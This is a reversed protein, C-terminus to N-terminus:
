YRPRYDYRPSVDYNVVICPMGNEALCSSYSVEILDDVTWGLEDGVRIPSLELESYLDNLSIYMESILRHNLLSVVKDIKERSSRFYRGSCSDYCLLDTTSGSIDQTLKEANEHMLEEETHAEVMEAKKPGLEKLVQKKYEKFKANTLSYAMSTAALRRAHENYSALFCTFSTTCLVATPIYVPVVEKVFRKAKEKSDSEENSIDRVCDTAVVTARSAEFIALGGFLLGGGLYLAPKRYRMLELANHSYSLLSNM